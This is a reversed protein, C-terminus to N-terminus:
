NRVNQLEKLFESIEFENNLEWNLMLGEGQQQIPYLRSDTMFLDQKRLNGLDVYSWIRVQTM